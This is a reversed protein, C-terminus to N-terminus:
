ESLVFFELRAFAVVDGEEIKYEMGSELRTGNLYTGNTSNLDIMYMGDEKPILKFHMRSVGDKRIVYDCAKEWSGVVVSENEIYIPSFQDKIVPMLCFSRHNNEATLITTEKYTIQNCAMGGENTMHEVVINNKSEIEAGDESQSSNALYEQMIHDVNDEKDLNMYIITFVILVVMGVLLYQIYNYTLINCLLGIILALNIVAVAILISRVLRVAKSEKEDAINEPELSPKKEEIHNKHSKEKTTLVNERLPVVSNGGSQNWSYALSQELYDQRYELLQELTCDPDTILNYFQLLLLFAEEDRKGVASLIESLFEQLSGNEKETVPNYCFELNGSDVEMFIQNTNWVIGALQLLYEDVTQIAGIISIIMNKLQVATFPLHEMITKLNTHYKLRYYLVKKGNFERIEYQLFYPIKQRQFLQNGYEGEIVGELPVLLYPTMGEKLFRISQM